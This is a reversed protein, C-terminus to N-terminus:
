VNEGCKCCTRHCYQSNVGVIIGVVVGFSLGLITGAILYGM